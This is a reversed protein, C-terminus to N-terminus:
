PSICSEIESNRFCFFRMEKSENRWLIEVAKSIDAQQGNFCGHVLNRYIMFASRPQKPDYHSTSQKLASESKLDDVWICPVGPITDSNEISCQMIRNVQEFTQGKRLWSHDLVIEDVLIRESIKWPFETIDQISGDTKNRPKGARKKTQRM